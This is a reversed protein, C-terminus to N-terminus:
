RQQQAALLKAAYGLLTDADVGGFVGLDFRIEVITGNQIVKMRKFSDVLEPADFPLQLEGQRVRRAAIAADGPTAYTIVARGAFFVSPATELREFVLQYHVTPVGFLNGILADMSGFWIPASADASLSLERWRAQIEPAGSQADNVLDRPGVVVYPGRWAAYTTAGDSGSIALLDGDAKVTVTAQTIAAPLCSVVKAKPLNGELIWYATNGGGAKPASLQYTAVLAKELETWCPPPPSALLPRLFRLPMFLDPRTRMVAVVNTGVLTEAPVAEAAPPAPIEAVLPSGSRGGSCAALALLLAVTRM